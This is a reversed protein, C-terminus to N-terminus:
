VFADSEKKLRIGQKFVMYIVYIGLVILAGKFLYFIGDYTGQSLLTVHYFSNIVSVLIELLVTAGYYILTKKILKLNREEFYLEENLNQLLNRICNLYSIILIVNVVCFALAYFSVFSLSLTSHSVDISSAMIKPLEQYFDFSSLLLAKFVIVLSIGLALQLGFCVSALLGLTFREYTRM